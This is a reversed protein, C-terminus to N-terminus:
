DKGAGILTVGYEKLVAKMAQKSIEKNAKTRSMQRGAGHSASNISQEVGKGRVLFGPATMSGPIIGM